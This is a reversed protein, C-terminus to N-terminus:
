APAGSGMYQGTGMHQGSGMHQGTGMRQGSGHMQAGAFAPLALVLALTLLIMAVKKM